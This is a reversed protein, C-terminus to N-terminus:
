DGAGTVSSITQRDDRAKRDDSSTAMELQSRRRRM